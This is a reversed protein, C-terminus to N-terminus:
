ILLSVNIDTTAIKNKYKNAKHQKFLQKHISIFEYILIYIYICKYVSNVFIHVTKYFYISIIKYINSYM